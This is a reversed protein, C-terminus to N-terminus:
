KTDVAAGTMTGPAANKAEANTNETASRSAKRQSRRAALVSQRRGDSRAGNSPWHVSGLKRFEDARASGRRWVFAITRYSKDSLSYTKVHTSQLMASGVAMEPLFTIGLDADVM